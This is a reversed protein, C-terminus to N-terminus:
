FLHDYIYGKAGFVCLPLLSPRKKAIIEYPTLKENSHLTRNFIWAAHRFAYPWLQRPLSSATLMTRAMELISRNTREIKGNQHHEYPISTEHIIGHENLFTTLFVNKFESGNDTRLRKIRIGTVNMFKIMWLRLQHKAEAKDGLPIVAALRSFHDQIVLVYKKLDFSPPLPGMLDAVIADGPATIIQRSPSHLPRHEAKSISCPHCLKIDNLMLPPIGDVANFKMFRKINWISLHGLRQHWLYSDDSTKTSPHTIYNIPPPPAESSCLPKISIEPLHSFSVPLFWRNKRRFSSFITNNQHLFFNGRSFSVHIVSHTAGSDLLAETNEFMPIVGIAAVNASRQSSQARAVAGKKWTPCDPAWHGIEGCHFCPNKSTLWKKKWKDSRSAIPSIAAASRNTSPPPKSPTNMRHQFAGKSPSPRYTDIRALQSSNGIISSSSQSSMQWVIDLIDEPHITVSPNVAMRTDLASTIQDRLHPMSFFLSLTMIKNADLVGIQNEIAEIAESLRLTHQTINSSQDVPNLIISAHHVISSWSARNFRNKLAQYVNRANPMFLRSTISDFLPRYVSHRIFALAILNRRYDPDRSTDDFYTVDGIFVTAWAELM